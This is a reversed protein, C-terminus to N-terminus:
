YEEFPLSLSDACGSGDGPQCSAAVPAFEEEWAVRPPQYQERIPEQPKLPTPDPTSREM